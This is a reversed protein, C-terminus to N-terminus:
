FCPCLSRLLEKILFALDCDRIRLNQLTHAYICMYVHLDSCLKQLHKDEDVTHTGPISSLESKTALVRIQHIM